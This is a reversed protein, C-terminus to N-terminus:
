DRVEASMRLPRMSGGQVSRAEFIVRGPCRDEVNYAWVRCRSTKGWLVFGPGKLAMLADLDVHLRTRCHGCLATVLWRRGRMEAVTVADLPHPPRCVTDPDRAGVPLPI